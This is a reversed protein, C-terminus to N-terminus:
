ENEEVKEFISDLYADIKETASNDDINSQNRVIQWNYATYDEIENTFEKNDNDWVKRTSPKSTFSEIIQGKLLAEVRKYGGYAATSITDNKTNFVPKGDKDRQCLHYSASVLVPIEAGPTSIDLAGFRMNKEYENSSSFWRIKKPVYIKTGIGFTFGKQLNDTENIEYVTNGSKNKLELM